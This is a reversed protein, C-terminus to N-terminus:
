KYKESLYRTVPREYYLYVLCAIIISVGCSIEFILTSSLGHFKSLGVVVFVGTIPHTLYISYSADGLFIFPKPIKNHFRRELSVFGFLIAAYQPQLYNLYEYHRNGLFNDWPILMLIGTSLVLISIYVPVKPFILYLEGILIGWMFYILYFSLFFTCTPWADNKYFSLLFGAALIPLTMWSPRKHMILAITFLAYFFMEFNLTWGVGYFAEIEGKTNRAPLFFLSYIINSINPSAMIMAPVLTLGAIKILNLTWYLPAIRIIRSIAFKRAVGPNQYIQSTRITMIFGSIVFFLPVGQQGFSWEPFNSDIRRHIDASIHTMLVMTAAVFRLFQVTDLQFKNKDLLM